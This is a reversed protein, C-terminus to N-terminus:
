AYPWQLTTPPQYVIAANKILSTGRYHSPAAGPPDLLHHPHPPQGLIGHGGRVPAARLELVVVECFRATTVLRARIRPAYVRTESLQLGLCSGPGSVPTFFFFDHSPAAGPPDLLHHPHHHQGLIGHGERRVDEEVQALTTFKLIVAHCFHPTTGLLARM